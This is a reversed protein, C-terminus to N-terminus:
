ALVEDREQLEALAQARLEDFANQEMADLVALFARATEIRPLIVYDAGADYMARAQALTEACVIVRAAPNLRRVASLLTMNSTGRLFDDSVTSLVIRAHEVGIHELTDLHSIDGYVIPVQMAKVKAFVEPSFDVILPPRGETRTQAAHLFSSAVRHFGLVVVEAGHAAIPAEAVDARDRIGLRNLLTTARHALQHNALVMYTTLTSTVVLTLAMVSSIEPGIHGLSLGISVIVLAFEGAQALALSTLTGVRPGYGFLYLLPGVTVFRSLVVVASLVAGAILVQSSGLQLQMGLAVFFLTVFFDRLGRIKAVVDLTYPLASLTVGAILAGMAISFNALIAVYGLVLCWSIASILVIEPSKAAWEFLPPLIYRAVL